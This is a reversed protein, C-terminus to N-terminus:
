PRLSQANTLSLCPLFLALLGFSGSSMPGPEVCNKLAVRLAVALLGMVLLGCCYLRTCLHVLFLFSLRRRSLVGPTSHRRRRHQSGRPIPDNKGSQHPHTRRLVRDNTSTRPSCEGTPIDMRAMRWGIQEPCRQEASVYLLRIVKALVVRSASTLSNHRYGLERHPVLIAFVSPKQCLTM